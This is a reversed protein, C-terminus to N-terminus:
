GQAQTLRRLRRREDEIAQAREVLGSVDLQKREKLHKVLLPRLNLPMSNPAQWNGMEERVDEEEALTDVLRKVVINIHKLIRPKAALLQKAEEVDGAERAIETKTKNTARQRDWSIFEEMLSQIKQLGTDGLGPVANEAMAEDVDALEKELKAEEEAEKDAKMKSAVAKAVPDQKEETETTM